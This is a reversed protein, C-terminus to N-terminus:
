AGPLGAGLVYLILVCSGLLAAGSLWLAALVVWVPLELFREYTAPSFSREPYDPLLHRSSQM